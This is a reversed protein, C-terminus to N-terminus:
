TSITPPASAGLASRRNKEQDAGASREALLKRTVVVHGAIAFVVNIAPLWVYPVRAVWTNLQDDGFARVMPSTAVAIFAIMALAAIGVLNWAWVLARPARNTLALAGVLLASGGTVVDFNYGSYSLANPMVGDLAARHMVLELPFRFGQVIVLVGLPLATALRRGVPSLGLVVGLVLVSAMFPAIPPPRADFRALVGASALAGSVSWWALAAALAWAVARPSRYARWIGALLLSTMLIALAPIGVSYSTM